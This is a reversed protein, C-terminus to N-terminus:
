CVTSIWLSPSLTSLEKKICEVATEINGHGSIMVFPVDSIEAAKTMVEIGDMRPMKIDCLVLDYKEKSILELGQEGDGADSIKYKEYELIERLTRRIPAEDDIILIKAM